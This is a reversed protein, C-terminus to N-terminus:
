LVNKLHLTLINNRGRVSPAAYDIVFGPQHYSRTYAPRCVVVCAASFSRMILRHISKHQWLSILYGVFTTSNIEFPWIWKRFNLNIPPFLEQWGDFVEPKKLFHYMSFLKKASLAPSQYNFLCRDQTSLFFSHASPVLYHAGSM